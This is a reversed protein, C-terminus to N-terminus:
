RTNRLSTQTVIEGSLVLFCGLKCMIRIMFELKQAHSAKKTVIGYKQNKNMCAGVTLNSYNGNRLIDVKLFTTRDMHFEPCYDYADM